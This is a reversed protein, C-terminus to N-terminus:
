GSGARGVWRFLAEVRAPVNAGLLRRGFAIAHEAHDVQGLRLRVEAVNGITLATALRGRLAQPLRMAREWYTLAGAYDRQRYAVLGLNSLAYARAREEELEAGRELVDELLARADSLQGASLLAIARNLRACSRQARTRRRLPSRM